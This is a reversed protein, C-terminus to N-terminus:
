YYYEEIVRWELRDDDRLDGFRLPANLGFKGTTQEVIHKCPLDETGLKFTRAWNNRTRTEREAQTTEIEPESMREWREVTLSNGSRMLGQCWGGVKVVLGRVKRETDEARVVLTSRNQKKGIADVPLDQWLEEYKTKDGTISDTNEGQELVTGDDQVTMDGEDSEPSDTKSDIWHTWVTHSKIGKAVDSDDVPTTKSKGAFAWDLCAESNTEQGKEQDWKERLIRLDVFHSDKSTLVITSTPEM